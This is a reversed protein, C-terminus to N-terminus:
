FKGLKLVSSVLVFVCVCVCWTWQSDLCELSVGTRHAVGDSRGAARGFCSSSSSATSGTM